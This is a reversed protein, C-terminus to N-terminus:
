TVCYCAAEEEQPAPATNRRRRQLKRRLGDMGQSRLKRAWKSASAPHVQFRRAVDAQRLGSELLKGARLRRSEKEHRTM